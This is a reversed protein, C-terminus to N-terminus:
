EPAATDAVVGFGVEDVHVGAAHAVPSHELEHAESCALGNFLHQM